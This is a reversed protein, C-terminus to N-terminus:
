INNVGFVIFQGFGFKLIECCVCIEPRIGYSNM